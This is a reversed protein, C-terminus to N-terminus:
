TPRQSLIFSIRLRRLVIVKPVPATHHQVRRTSSARARPATATTQCNYQNIRLCRDCVFACMHMSQSVFQKKHPSSTSQKLCLRDPHSVPM